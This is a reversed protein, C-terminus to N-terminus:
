LFYIFCFFSSSNFFRHTESPCFLPWRKYFVLFYFKQVYFSSVEGQYVQRLPTVTILRNVQTVCGAVSAVQVEDEMYTGHGRILFYTLTLRKNLYFFHYWFFVVVYFFKLTHTISLFIVFM